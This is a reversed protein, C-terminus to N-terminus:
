GYILFHYHATKKPLVRINLKRGWLLSFGQYRKLRVSSSELDTCNSEPHTLRLLNNIKGFTVLKYYAFVCWDAYILLNQSHLDIHQEKEEEEDWGTGGACDWQQGGWPRPCHGLRIMGLLVYYMAYSSCEIYITLSVNKGRGSYGSLSLLCSTYGM